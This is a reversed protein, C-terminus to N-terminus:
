EGEECLIERLKILAQRTRWKVTGAPEGTVEATEAVGLGQFYRLTIVIRELESLQQVAM